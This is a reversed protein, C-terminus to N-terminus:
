KKDRRVMSLVTLLLLGIVPVSGGSSSDECNPANGVLPMLMFARKEGEFIGTGTIVGSDNISRAEHLLWASADECSILKNLDKLSDNEYLFAHFLGPLGQAPSKQLQSIGVVQDVENIDFAESYKFNDNLFGLATIAGLGADYIFAELVASSSDNISAGGVIKRANNVAWPLQLAGGFVEIKEVTDADNVDIAVLQRTMVTDILEESIGVAYGANNVARLVIGLQADEGGIPNVKILSDADMNYFFGRAYKTTLPNGNTDDGDEPDFLGFGVVLNNDNIAIARANEPSDPLFQPIKNITLNNIDYFVAMETDVILDSVNGDNATIQVVESEVSHGVAYDVNMGFAFSIGPGDIVNSNTTDFYISHDLFGLESLSNNQYIFAHNVFGEGSSNGVVSDLNNIAFAEVSQVVNEDSVEGLSGLDVVQYLDAAQGTSAWAISLALLSIRSIKRKNTFISM